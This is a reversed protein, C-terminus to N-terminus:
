VMYKRVIGLYEKLCIRSMGEPSRRGGCLERQCNRRSDPIEGWGTCTTQPLQDDYSNKTDFISSM